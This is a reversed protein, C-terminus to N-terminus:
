FYFSITNFFIIYIEIISKLGKILEIFCIRLLQSNRIHQSIEEQSELKGALCNKTLNRM